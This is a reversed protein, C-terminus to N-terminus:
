RGGNSTKLTPPNRATVWALYRMKTSWSDILRHTELWQVYETRSMGERQELLPLAAKWGKFYDGTRAEFIFQQTKALAVLSRRPPKNALSRDLLKMAERAILDAVQVRPNKRSAFSIEDLFPSEEQWEPYKAFLHYLQGTNYETDSNRDFTVKILGQKVQLPANRSIAGVVHSFCHLYCAEPTVDDFVERFKVLDLAIGYSTLASATLLEVLKRYIELNTPHKTRDPDDAFESEWRAAHFVRDGTLATWQREVSEWVEESGIVAAVAFVRQGTEDASEDGFVSWMVTVTTPTM